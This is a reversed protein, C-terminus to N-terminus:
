FSEWTEGSDRSIASTLNSRISHNNWILLLDDSCPVRKVMCPAFPAAPGATSHLAWSEGEDGSRAIHINGMTSRLFMAVTGDALEIVTPEAYREGEPERINESSKRWTAGDDDSLWVHSGSGLERAPLLLRGGQLRVLRDNTSCWYADGQTMQVPESWTQCEDDSHKLMPHLRGGVLNGGGESDKRMFSLLVRGAPLRLLSAEMVNLEGINEQVLFPPSWTTGEDRSWKGMIRAAGADKPESGYFDTYALFLRGDEFPLISAETQRCHTRSAPCIITSIEKTNERM